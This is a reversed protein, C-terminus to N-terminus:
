EERSIKPERLEFPETDWAMARIRSSASIAEFTM